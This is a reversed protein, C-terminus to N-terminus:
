KRVVKKGDVFPIKVKRVKIDGPQAQIKSRPLIHQVEAVKRVLSSSTIMLKRHHFLTQLMWSLSACRLLSTMLLLPLTQRARYWIRLYDKSRQRTEWKKVRCKLIMFSTTKNDQGQFLFWWRSRVFCFLNKSNWSNFITRSYPTENMKMGVEWSWSVEWLWWTRSYCWKLMCQRGEDDCWRIRCWCLHIFFFRELLVWTWRYGGGAEAGDLLTIVM